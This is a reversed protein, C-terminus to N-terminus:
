GTQGTEDASYKQQHQTASRALKKKEGEIPMSDAECERRWSPHDHQEINNLSKPCEEQVDAEGGGM